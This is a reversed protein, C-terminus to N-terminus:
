FDWMKMGGIQIFVKSSVPDNGYASQYESNLIVKTMSVGAKVDGWDCRYFSYSYGLTIATVYEPQDPTLSAIQLQQATRQLYEIRGWINKRDQHFWFEEAFSNLAGTHDLHNILGYIFANHLMWGNDFQLDNYFSASYRWVHDLDPEHPEPEKVYAASVMAYFQSNFQHILRAAYSNPRNIPLDVKTPEPETGNFTSIEFTSGSLQLAAGLVTSSIHGVDQGIHHGLPADPNVMGTPRHMFAIPGDTSQGRPALWIKLHDKNNGLTITDSLTLGMIPSSHPHQADLYKIHNDNEEGIQLLEPYGSNPYSWKEFTGMFDLNIYHADAVSSGVDVMFMNPISFADRGRPGEIYTQTLFSNYQFMVMQMPMGKMALPMCMAMSFDWVEMEGCDKPGMPRVHNTMVMSHDPQSFAQSTLFLFLLSYVFNKKM